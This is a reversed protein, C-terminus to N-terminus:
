PQETGQRYFVRGDEWLRGDAFFTEVAVVNKGASFLWLVPGNKSKVVAYDKGPLFVINGSNCPALPRDSKFETWANGLVEFSYPHNAKAWKGQLKEKLAPEEAFVITAASSAFCIVLIAFRM